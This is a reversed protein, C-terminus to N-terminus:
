TRVSYDVGFMQALRMGYNIHELAKDNSIYAEALLYIAVPVHWIDVNRSLM